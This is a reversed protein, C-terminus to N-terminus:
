KATRTKLLEDAKARYFVIGADLTRDAAGFNGKAGLHADPM